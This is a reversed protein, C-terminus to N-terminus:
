KDLSFWEDKLIGYSVSDYYKGDVIRAKKYCAEQKLGLKTALKVMGINGSWTTLGLRVIEPHKNFVMTIWKKLAKTGIKKNWNVSDFIVIGVEMWLTEKSRYYYSCSGVMKNEHYILMINNIAGNLLRKKLNSIDDNHDRKQYYPGNFKHYDKDPGSLLAYEDINELTISRFEM